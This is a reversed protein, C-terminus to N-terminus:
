STSDVPRDLAGSAAHADLEDACLDTLEDLSELTSVAEAEDMRSLAFGMHVVVWEGPLPLTMGDDVLLAASVEQRRGDVDVLVHQSVPDVDRVVRGPMGLCM